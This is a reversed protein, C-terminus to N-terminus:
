GLTDLQLSLSEFGYHYHYAPLEANVRKFLSRKLALVGGPIFHVAQHDGCRGFPHESGLRSNEFLYHRYPDRCVCGGADQLEGSHKLTVPGVAGMGPLVAMAVLGELWDCRDVVVDDHVFVLMDGTAEAAGASMAASIGYPDPEEVRTAQIGAARAATLVDPVRDGSSVVVLELPRYDTRQLLERTYHPVFCDEGRTLLILSVCPRQHDGWGVALQRGESVNAQLGAGALASSVVSLDKQEHRVASAPWSM